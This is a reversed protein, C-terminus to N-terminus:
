SIVALALDIGNLKGRSQVSKLIYYSMQSDQLQWAPFVQPCFVHFCLCAQPAGATEAGATSTKGVWTSSKHILSGEPTRIGAQM